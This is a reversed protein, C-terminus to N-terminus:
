GRGPGAPGAAARSVIRELHPGSREGVGRGPHWTCGVGLAAVRGTGLVRAVAETVAPWGPGGAAPFRLGPLEEPDVVDVDLHLYLPGDPLREAALEGVQRRRIAAAELYAAEPPDLDRADVLVVREEAVPRLGLPAALLEPRYGVLLRLPIGGLYGSTTTELTQVDGHADLWVVAPDVGARQLGAVTGISTTCDGSLVVPRRGARVAESVAAAVLEYLRAMRAWPDGRPLEATVVADAAVPVDLDALREDLHYPVLIRDM